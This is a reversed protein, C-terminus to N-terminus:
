QYLRVGIPKDSINDPTVRGDHKEATKNKFEFYKWCFRWDKNFVGQYLSMGVCASVLSLGAGEITRKANDYDKVLVYKYTPAHDESECEHKRCSESARVPGSMIFITIVVGVLMIILMWDFRKM